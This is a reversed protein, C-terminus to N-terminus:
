NNNIIVISRERTQVNMQELQYNKQNYFYINGGYIVVNSFSYLESGRKSRNRPQEVIDLNKNMILYSDEEILYIFEGVDVAIVDHYLNFGCLKYTNSEINYIEVSNDEGGFIYILNDLGICSPLIRGNIMNQLKYWRWTEIEFREAARVSYKSESQGGFAYLNWNYCILSAFYRSTQMDQVRRCASTTPNFIFCAKDVEESFGAIFVEGNPLTCTSTHSFDKHIYKSLNYTRITRLKLDIQHIKSSKQKTKYIYRDTSDLNSTYESDTYPPSISEILYTSYNYFFINNTTSIINNITFRSNNQATEIQNIKQLTLDYIQLHSDTLLYINNNYKYAIGDCCESESNDFLVEEYELSITNFAQIYECSGDFLYIKDYIAVCSLATSNYYNRINPLIEWTFNSLNLREAACCLRDSEDRGGFAYLYNKYSFLSIYYRPTSLDPLKTVKHSNERYLYVDCSVPDTFGACIVNGDDLLCTSTDSFERSMSNITLVEVKGTIIDIKLLRKSNDEPIYIYRHSQLDKFSNTLYQNQNYLTKNKKMYKLLNSKFVKLKEESIRGSSNIRERLNESDDKLKKIKYKLKLESEHSQNIFLQLQAVHDELEKHHKNLDEISKDKQAIMHQYSLKTRNLNDNVEQIINDKQVLLSKYYLLEKNMNVISNDKESVLEKLSETPDTATITIQNSESKVQINGGRLINLIKDIDIQMGHIYHRFVGSYGRNNYVEILERGEESLTRRYNSLIGSRKMVEAKAEQLKTRAGQFIQDMQAILVQKNELIKSEYRNIQHEYEKFKKLLELSKLYESEYIDYMDSNHQIKLGLDISLLYHDVFSDSLHAGLCNNGILKVQKYCICANTATESGCINCILNNEYM